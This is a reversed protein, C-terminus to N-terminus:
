TVPQLAPVPLATPATPDGPEWAAALVEARARAEDLDAIGTLAVQPTPLDPHLLLVDYM